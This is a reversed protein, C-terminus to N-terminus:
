IKLVKQNPLKVEADVMDAPHCTANGVIKGELVAVIAYDYYEKLEELSRLMVSKDYQSSEKLLEAVQTAYEERSFLTSPRCYQM